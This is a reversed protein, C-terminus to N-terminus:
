RRSLLSPDAPNVSNRLLRLFSDGWAATTDAETHAFQRRFSAVARRVDPQRWWDMPQSRVENVKRAADEPSYHLVGTERLRAFYPEASPRLGNFRPEWFLVTPKDASLAQLLTTHNNDAVFLKCRDLAEEFPVIGDDHRLDPFSELLRQKQEWLYHDHPYLRIFLESRAEAGLARLWRHQWQIFEEWQPGIPNSWLRYAYRPMDNGSYLIPGTMRRRAGRRRSSGLLFGPVPRARGGLGDSWGWSWYEDAVIQDHKETPSHKVTGFSGGHQVSILKSGAKEKLQAAIFQFPVTNTSAVLARPSLSLMPKLQALYRAYGELYLWPFNAALTSAFLREFEGEGFARALGARLDRDMKPAGFKPGNRHYPVFVARGRTQLLLRFRASLPLYSSFYWIQGDRLFVSQPLLRALCGAFVRRARLKLRARWHSLVITESRVDLAKRSNIRVGMFECTATLLQLNYSDTHISRLLDDADRPVFYSSEDLGITELVGYSERAAQVCLYRDYLAHIYHTLWPGLLIRWYQESLSTGHLGNLTRALISLSRDYFVDCFEVAEDFVAKDDLPYPLVAHEITKLQRIRSHLCCWSGLFLISSRTDWFESLATTALFM